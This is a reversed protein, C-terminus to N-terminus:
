LDCFGTICKPSFFFWRFLFIANGVALATRRSLWLPCCFADLYHLFSLESFFTSFYNLSPNNTTKEVLCYQNPWLLCSSKQKRFTQILFRQKIQQQRCICMLDTPNIILWLRCLYIFTGCFYSVSFAVSALTWGQSEKSGVFPPRPHNWQFFVLDPWPGEKGLGELNCNGM